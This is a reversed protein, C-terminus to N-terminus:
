QKRRFREHCAVCGELLMGRFAETVKLSDRSFAASEVRSTEDVLRALYSRFAERDAPDSIGFLSEAVQTWNFVRAISSIERAERAIVSYDEMVLGRNITMTSSLLTRMFLVPPTREVYEKRFRQHCRICANELLLQVGSLVEPANKRRSASLIADAAAQQADLHRLFESDGSVDVGVSRLDLGRMRQAREDLALANNEVAQYDARAVGELIENVATLNEHMVGVLRTGSDGTGRDAALLALLAVATLASRGAVARARAADRHFIM